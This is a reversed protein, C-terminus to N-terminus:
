RGYRRPDSPLHRPWLRRTKRPSVLLCATLFLLLTSPEPTFFLSYVYDGAVAEGSEAAVAFLIDLEYQGPPLVGSGNALFSGGSGAPRFVFDVTTDGLTSLISVYRTPSTVSFDASLQSAASASAIPVEPFSSTAAASLSGSLGIAADAIDSNQSASAIAAGGGGILLDAFVIESWFGPASTTRSETEAGGVDAIAEVLRTHDSYVIARGPAAALFLVLLSITFRTM